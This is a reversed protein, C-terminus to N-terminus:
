DTAAARLGYLSALASYISTLELDIGYTTLVTQDFNRRDDQALEIDVSLIERELLPAFANKIDQIGDDDLIGPNLIHFRSKIRSSSLDLAGEGRGFGLAEILFMSLSSNLLAHILDLDCDDKPVLKILRQDVFAPPTLRGVFLRDGLNTFMVLEAISDTRMEYWHHGARKLRNMVAETKFRNIWGLAGVHGLEELEEESRSCSFAAM